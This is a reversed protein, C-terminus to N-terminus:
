ALHVAAFVLGVLNAEHISMRGDVTAIGTPLSADLAAIDGKTTIRDPDRPLATM